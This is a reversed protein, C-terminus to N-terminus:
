ESLFNILDEILEDAKQNLSSFRTETIALGDNQAQKYAAKDPLHGALVKFGREELAARAEKGEADTSIRTLAFVLNQELVGAKILQNALAIAPILDDRSAGTPM